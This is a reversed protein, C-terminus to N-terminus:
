ISKLVKKQLMILEEERSIEMFGLKGFLALSPFNREDISVEVVDIDNTQTFIVQNLTAEAIGKRRWKEDICISLYMIRDDKEYHVSGVIKGDCFIKYLWVGETGTVYNFYNDSTSIFKAISPLSYIRKLELIDDDDELTLPVLEIKM